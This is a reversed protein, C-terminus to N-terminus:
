RLAEVRDEQLVEIFRRDETDIMIEPLPGHMVHDEETERVREQLCEPVAMEHLAHLDRHGLVEAYLAPSGEIVAGAGNAVDHLIM